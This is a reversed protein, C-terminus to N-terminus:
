PDTKKRKPTCIKKYTHIPFSFLNTLCRGIHLFFKKLPGTEYCQGWDHPLSCFWVTMKCYHVEFLFSLKWNQRSWRLFSGSSRLFDKWKPNSRIKTFAQFHFNYIEKEKLTWKQWIVTHFAIDLLIFGRINKTHM